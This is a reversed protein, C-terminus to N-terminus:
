SLSRLAQRVAEREPLPLRSGREDVGFPSMAGGWSAVDM